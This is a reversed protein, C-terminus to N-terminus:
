STEWAIILSICHTVYICIRFQKVLHVYAYVFLFASIVPSVYKLAPTFYQPVMEKTEVWIQSKFREVAPHYGFVLVECLCLLLMPGVACYTDYFDFWYVGARTLMVFGVVFVALSVVARCGVPTLKHGAIEVKEDELYSSAGEM